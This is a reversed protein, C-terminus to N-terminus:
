GAVCCSNRGQSKAQYLARDAREMLSQATDRRRFSTIGCSLTVSVPSHRFHFGLKEVALRLQEGIALAAEASIDDLLLVFEEGGYRALFDRERLGQSLHRALVQLLKDGAAHGYRDNITKFHDLDLTALVRPRRDTQWAALEAALHEDCAARNPIGTLADIAARREAKRLQQSLVRAEDELTEIRSRLAESRERHVALRADSRQRYDRVNQDIQTLRRVVQTQLSPLDLADRSQAVLAQTQDLLASGFSQTDAQGRDRDESVQALHHAIDDLRDKLQLLLRDAVDKDERLSAAQAEALDAIQVAVAALAEPKSAAGLRDRLEQIRERADAHLGLRDLLRKLPPRLPALVAETDVPMAPAATAPATTTPLTDLLAVSVTLSNMLADLVPRDAPRRLTASLSSLTDDLAPHQGRAAICLRSAIRRLLEEIERWQGQRRDLDDVVERYQRQWREPEM